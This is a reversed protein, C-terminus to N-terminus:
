PPWLAGVGAGMALGYFSLVSIITVRDAIARAGITRGITWESPARRPAPTRGPATSTTTTTM